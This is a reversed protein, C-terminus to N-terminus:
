RREIRPLYAGNVLVLLVVLAGLTWLYLRRKRPERDLLAAGYGLGLASVAITPPCFHIKEEPCFLTLIMHRTLVIGLLLAGFSTISRGEIGASRLLILLLTTELALYVLTTGALQGPLRGSDRMFEWPQALIGGVTEAFLVRAFDTDSVLALPDSWKDLFRV